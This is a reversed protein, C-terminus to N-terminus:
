PQNVLDMNVYFKYCHVRASHTNKELGGMSKIIVVFINIADFYVCEYVNYEVVTEFM